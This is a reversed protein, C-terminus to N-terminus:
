PVLQSYFWFVLFKEGFFIKENKDYFIGCATIMLEENRCWRQRGTGGWDHTDFLSATENDM